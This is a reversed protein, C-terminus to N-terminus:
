NRVFLMANRQKKQIEYKEEGMQKITTRRTAIRDKTTTWEGFIKLRDKKTCIERPLKM